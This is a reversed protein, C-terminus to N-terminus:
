SRRWEKIALGIRLVLLCITLGAVVVALAADLDGLGLWTAAAAGTVGTAIDTKTQM